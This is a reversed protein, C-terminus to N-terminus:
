PSANSASPSSSLVSLVVRKTRSAVSAFVSGTACGHMVVNTNSTRLTGAAKYLASPPKAVLPTLM